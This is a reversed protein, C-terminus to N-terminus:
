WVLVVIVWQTTNIMKLNVFYYRHRSKHLTVLCPSNLSLHIFTHITKLKPFPPYRTLQVVIYEVSFTDEANLGVGRFSLPAPPQRLGCGCRGPFLSNVAKSLPLVVSKYMTLKPIRDLLRSTVPGVSVQGHTTM